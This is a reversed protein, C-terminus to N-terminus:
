TEPVYNPRRHLFRVSDLFKQGSQVLSFIERYHRRPYKSRELRRSQVIFVSTIHQIIAGTVSLTRTRTLSEVYAIRARPHFIRYAMCFVLCIGPGNCLLLDCGKIRAATIASVLFSHVLTHLALGELVRNPRPIRHVSVHVNTNALERRLMEVSHTDCSSCIATISGPNQPCVKLIELLERTHGGGGLVVAISGPGPKQAAPGDTTPVPM